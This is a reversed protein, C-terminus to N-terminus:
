LNQGECEHTELYRGKRNMEARMVFEIGYESFVSEWEQKVNKWQFQEEVTYAAVWFECCDYM